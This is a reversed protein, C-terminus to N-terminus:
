WASFHHSDARSPCRNPEPQAEAIATATRAPRSGRAHRPEEATVDGGVGGDGPTGTPPMDGSTPRPCGAGPAPRRPLRALDRELGAVLGELEVGLRGTQGDVVGAGDVSREPKLRLGASTQFLRSRPTRRARELGGDVAAPELGGSLPASAVRSVLTTWPATVKGAPLTATTSGTLRAVARPRASPRRPRPGSASAGRGIAGCTSRTAGATTRRPPPGPADCLEGRRRHRCRDRDLDPALVNATAGAAKAGARAIFASPVALERGDISLALSTAATRLAAASAPSSALGRSALIVKLPVLGTTTGTRPRPSGRRSTRPRSTRGPGSRARGAGRGDGSRDHLGLQGGGLGLLDLRALDDRGERGVERVVRRAGLVDGDGRAGEVAGVDARALLEAEVGDSPCRVAAM